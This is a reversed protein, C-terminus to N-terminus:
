LFRKINASGVYIPILHALVVTSSRKQAGCPNFKTLEVTVFFVPSRLLSVHINHLFEPSFYRIRRFDDTFFASECLSQSPFLLRKFHRLGLGRAYTIPCAMFFVKLLRIESCLHSARNKVQKDKKRFSIEKYGLVTLHM